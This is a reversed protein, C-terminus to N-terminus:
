TSWFGSYYYDTQMSYFLSWYNLSKPFNYISFTVKFTTLFVTKNSHSANRTTKSHVSLLGNLSVDHLKPSTYQRHAMVRNVDLRTISFTWWTWMVSVNGFWPSSISGISNIKDNYGYLMTPGTNKKKKSRLPSSLSPNNSLHYKKELMRVKMSLNSHDSQRVHHYGEPEEQNRIPSWMHTQGVERENSWCMSFVPFSGLHECFILVEQKKYSVWLTLTSCLINYRRMICYVWQSEIGHGKMNYVIATKNSHSANATTKSTRFSVMCLYMMLTLHNPSVITVVGNVDLLTISFTWWTWMASDHVLYTGKKYSAWRIITSYVRNYRRIICYGRQSEVGPERM